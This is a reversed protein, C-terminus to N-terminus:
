SVFIREREIVICGWGMGGGSRFIGGEDFVTEMEMRFVVVVIM